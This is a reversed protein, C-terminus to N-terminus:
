HQNSPAPKTAADSLLRQLEASRASTETQLCRLLEVAFSEIAGCRTARRKLFTKQSAVLEPTSKAARATAYASSMERDATALDPSSCLAIEISQSVKDCDFGPEIREVTQSRWARFLQLKDQLSVNENSALYAGVTNGGSDTVRLDAGATILLQSMRLDSNEAAYMLATRGDFMLSGKTTANVKAGKKLLARASEFYNLQASYMLPTKGMQNVHNPDHGGGLLKETLDAHPLAYFLPTEGAEDLATDTLGGLEAGSLSGGLLKEAQSDPISEFSHEDFLFNKSWLDDIVKKSTASAIAPRLGFQTEFYRTLETIAATRAASVKRYTAYNWVNRMAWTSSLWQEPDGYKSDENPPVTAWPRTSLVRAADDVNPQACQWYNCGAGILTAMTLFRRLGPPSTFKELNTPPTLEGRCIPKAEGDASLPSVTWSERISCVYDGAFPRCHRDERYIYFHGAVKFVNGIQDDGFIHAQNRLTAFLAIDKPDDRAVSSAIPLGGAQEIWRDLVTKDSFLLWENTGPFRDGNFTYLALLAGTRGTGDFDGVIEDITTEGFRNVLLRNWDLFDFGPPVHERLYGSGSSNPVQAGPGSEYLPFDLFERRIEAQLPQCVHPAENVVLTPEHALRTAGLPYTPRASEAALNTVAPSPPNAAALSASALLAFLAMRPTFSGHKM